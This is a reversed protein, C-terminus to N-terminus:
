LKGVASTSAQMSREDQAELRTLGREKSVANMEASGAIFFAAGSFALTDTVYDLTGSIAISPHLIEPPLYVIVTLAFYLAGLIVAATRAYKNFFLGLGCAILIAGTLCALAVQAPFWAPMQLELPVGPAFHPHLFHEVGYFIMAVAFFIRAAIAVRRALIERTDANLTAALALAGACLSGDRFFLAVVFRNSPERFVGPVYILAVFLFMMLGLLPAALRELKGTILSLAAAINAVGVLYLWFAHAPMWAPVAGIVVSSESFHQMGFVAYPVGIFLPGFSILRDAIPESSQWQRLTLYLGVAFLLITALHIILSTTM